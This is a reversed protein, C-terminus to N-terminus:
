GQYNDHDNKENDIEYKGLRLAKGESLQRYIQLEQILNFEEMRLGTGRAKLIGIIM